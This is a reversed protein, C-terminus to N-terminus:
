EGGQQPAPPLASLMARWFPVCYERQIPYYFVDYPPDGDPVATKYGAELMELTPEEPVLRWGAPVTVAQPSKSDRIQSKLREIEAYLQGERKIREQNHWQSFLSWQKDSSHWVGCRESLIAELAENIEQEGVAEPQAEIFSRITEIEDSGTPITRGMILDDIINEVSKLAEAKTPTKDQTM